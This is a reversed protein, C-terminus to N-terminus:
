NNTVKLSPSALSRMWPSLRTAPVQVRLLLASLQWTTKTDRLGQCFIRQLMCSFYHYCRLLQNNMQDNIELLSATLERHQVVGVLELVRSQPLPKPTDSIDINRYDQYLLQCTRCRYIPRKPAQQVGWSWTVSVAWLSWIM